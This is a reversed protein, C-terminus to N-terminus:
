CGVTSYQLFNRDLFREVDDFHNLVSAHDGEVVLHEVVHQFERDKLRLEMSESMEKSPWFEDQTASVFYIPGNIKEISIESRAVAETDKLMEVWAARLDGRLLAPIASWPVPVFELPENNLSFSPTNMAITLAPFVANGPVMAVVAKIEPYTSALLLGLEAGKSAGIVAICRQNINSHQSANVIAQFVGDLAIRDLERPTGEMGFYGVALLAYGQSIFDNRQTEWYSSAWANGGEAGGLGVILPLNTGSGVFLRANVKGHNEPFTDTDFSLVAYFYLGLSLGVGVVLSIFLWKFVAPARTM